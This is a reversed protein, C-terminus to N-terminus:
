LIKELGAKKFYTSKSQNMKYTSLFDGNGFVFWDNSFDEYQMVIDKYKTLENYLTNSM